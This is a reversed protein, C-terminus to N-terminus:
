RRRPATIEGQLFRQREDGTDYGWAAALDRLAVPVEEPPPEPPQVEGSRIKEKWDGIGARYRGHDFRGYELMAPEWAVGLFDCLRRTEAAPDAALDEYRVTLGDYAQRAQELAEGYRRIMKTNREEDDQPRLEGRSKAIAGPHRLLFIFRADPWCQVLREVIFVNRPAKSVLLRKGSEELERHLVWDWMVYELENTDLGIEKLSKEAYEDRTTVNLDRLNLEQPSCIQSHSDLLVRLLTSGSRVSSLVFTPATLLRARTEPPRYRRRAGVRRLELGTARRLLTNIARKLRRLL